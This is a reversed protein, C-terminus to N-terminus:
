PVSPVTSCYYSFLWSVTLKVVAFTEILAMLVLVVLNWM